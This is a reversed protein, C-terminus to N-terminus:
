KDNSRRSKFIGLGRECQRKNEGVLQGRIVWARRGEEEGIERFFVLNTRESARAESVRWAFLSKSGVIGGAKVKGIGGPSSREQVAGRRCLIKGGSVEAALSSSM